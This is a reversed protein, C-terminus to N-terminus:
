NPSICRVEYFKNERIADVDMESLLKKSRLWNFADHPLLLRKAVAICKVYKWSQHSVDVRPSFSPSFLLLKFPVLSRTIHVLFKSIFFMSANCVCACACVNHFIM